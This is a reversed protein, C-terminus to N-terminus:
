PFVITNPDVTVPNTTPENNPTTNTATSAFTFDLSNLLYIPECFLTLRDLNKTSKIQYTKTIELLYIIEQETPLISSNIIKETELKDIQITNNAIDSYCYILKLNFNVENTLNFNYLQNKVLNHFNIRILQQIPKVPHLLGDIDFARLSANNSILSTPLINM